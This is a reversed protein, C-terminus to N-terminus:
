RIKINDYKTVFENLKKMGVMMQYLLNLGDEKDLQDNVLAERAKGLDSIIGMLEASAAKRDIVMEVNNVNKEM